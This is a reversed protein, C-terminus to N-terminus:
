SGESPTPFEIEDISVGLVESLRKLTPYSPQVRGTELKYITSGTVGARQALQEQSLHARERLERLLM